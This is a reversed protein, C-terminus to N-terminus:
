SRDIMHSLDIRCCSLSVNHSFPPFTILTIFSVHVNIKIRFPSRDSYSGCFKFTLLGINVAFHIQPNSETEMNFLPEAIVQLPSYDTVSSNTM